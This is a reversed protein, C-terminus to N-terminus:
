GYGPKNQHHLAAVSVRGVVVPVVGEGHGVEAVDEVLV